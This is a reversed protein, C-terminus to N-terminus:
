LTNRPEKASSEDPSPNARGPDRSLGPRTALSAEQSRRYRPEAHDMIRELLGDHSRPLHLPGPAVGRLHSRGTGGRVDDFDVAAAGDNDLSGKQASWPRDRRADRRVRQHHHAANAVKYLRMRVLLRWLDEQGKLSYGDSRQADFFSHFLSQVIDDQDTRVRLKPNLRNRALACLWPAFRESLRQAAEERVASISARLGALAATMSGAAAPPDREDAGASRSEAAAPRPGAPGNGAAGDRGM